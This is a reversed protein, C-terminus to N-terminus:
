SEMATNWHISHWKSAPLIVEQRGGSVRGENALPDVLGNPPIRVHAPVRRLQLRLGALGVAQVEPDAANGHSCFM